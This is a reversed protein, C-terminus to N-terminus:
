IFLPLYFKVKKVSKNETRCFGNIKRRDVIDDVAKDVDPDSKKGATFKNVFDPVM